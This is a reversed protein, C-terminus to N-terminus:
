ANKRRRLAALGGLGALLMLAPAPLPVASVQLNDIAGSGGFNFTLSRTFVTSAPTLQHFENDGNFQVGSDYGDGTVVMPQFGSGRPEFDVLTVGTFAVITDFLFTITGGRANDDVRSTAENIILVNGLDDNPFELDPDETNTELTDFVQALNSGGSTSITGTLGHGFDFAGDVFSGHSLAAGNNTSFDITAASAAGASIAAVMSTALFIHKM